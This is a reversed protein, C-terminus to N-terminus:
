NNPDQFMWNLLLDQTKGQPSAERYAAGAQIKWSGRPNGLIWSVTRRGLDNPPFFVTWEWWETAQISEVPATSSSCSTKVPDGQCSSRSDPHQEIFVKLLIMKFSSFSVRRCDAWLQGKSGPRGQPDLNALRWPSACTLKLTGAEKNKYTHKTAWASTCFDLVRNQCSPSSAGGESLLRM